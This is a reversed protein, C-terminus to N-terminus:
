DASQQDVYKGLWKGIAEMDGEMHQWLTSHTAMASYVWGALFAELTHKHSAKLTTRAVWYGLYGLQAELSLGDLLEKLEPAMGAKMRALERLAKAGREADDRETTM